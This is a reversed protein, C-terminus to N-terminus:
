AHVHIKDQVNFGNLPPLPSSLTARATDQRADSGAGWEAGETATEAQAGM